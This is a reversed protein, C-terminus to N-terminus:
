QIQHLESLPEAVAVDRSRRRPARHHVFRLLPTGPTVRDAGAPGRRRTPLPFIRHREAVVFAFCCLAVSVHHHWGPFRRGEYHDIGLEGKLDQYVRETRWRQMTIRVLETLSTDEPLSSFFYNAPEQEGDRWEVLLWVPQRDPLDRGQEAVPTVRRMAFRATMEEGSTSLRWVCREFKGKAELKAALDRLEIAQGGPNIATGIEYVSTRCNVGVSYQLGLRHVALRFEASAGYASDALLIGPPLEDARARSLMELALELKTKFTVDDPIRAERRRAPDETWSEPLYLQFDVPVHASRTALTLSVGVQCNTVKGASGTYQRQVGVSHKGQKLFGTDDLIWTEVPQTTTMAKLAYRTAALRIAHDDWVSDAIFHLLRQHAADVGTASGVARAAIPEVSKREGDSLLGHAYTAFSARRRSNGLLLGLQELYDELRARGADTLDTM